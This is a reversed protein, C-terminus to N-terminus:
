SPRPGSILRHLGSPTEAIARFAAANDVLAQACKAMVQARESDQRDELLRLRESLNNERELCQTRNERERQIQDERQQKVMADTRADSARDRKILYIVAWLLLLVVFGLKSGETIIGNITVPDM